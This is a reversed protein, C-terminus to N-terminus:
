GAKRYAEALLTLPHVVNLGTGQAIQIACSGCNTVVRDVGSKRIEEFLHEGIQMSLDYNEKKLGFTGALGCCRDGFAQVQLGPILKM